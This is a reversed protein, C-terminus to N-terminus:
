GRRGAAYVARGLADLAARLEANPFDTLRAAVRAAIAPDPPPSPPNSAMPALLDQVFRLREVTRRGLHTNIREALAGAMHQLELAVPGACALTLTGAALRRPTTVAAIRPGVINPWDALIQATAPARKRFAPRLLPALLAGLPRSAYARRPAEPKDKREPPPMDQPTTAMRGKGGPAQLAKEEPLGKM